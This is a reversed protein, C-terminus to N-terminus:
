TLTSEYAASISSEEARCSASRIVSKIVPGLTASTGDTTPIRTRWYDLPGFKPSAAPNIVADGDSNKISCLADIFAVAAAKAAAPQKASIAANIGNFMEEFTM